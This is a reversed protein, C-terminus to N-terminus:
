KELLPFLDALRNIGDVGQITPVLQIHTIGGDAFQRIARAIEEDSGTLPQAAGTDTRNRVPRQDVMIGLTKVLTGPDRGVTACATALAALLPTLEDPHSRSHVLWGNWQDAYKAAMRLM